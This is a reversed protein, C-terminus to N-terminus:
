KDVSQGAKTLQQKVFATVVTYNANLYDPDESLCTAKWHDLKSGDASEVLTNASYYGVESFGAKYGEESLLYRTFLCATYPLKATEPILTWMNYVFGNYGEVEYNYGSMRLVKKWYGESDPDSTKTESVYDKIKALGAFFIGDKHSETNMAKVESTDSSHYTSINAIFEAVFKYGINEYGDKTKGDELKGDYDKGFYSKYAAKLTKVSDPSTLMILFSMNIDEGIPSQYSLKKIGKMEKGDKGTLQWINKLYDEGAAVNHYFIKNFTVGVIPKQDGKAINFGDGSPVYSHLFGANVLSYVFSADQIMVWDGAYGNSEVANNLTKQFDAGKEAAYVANEETLWDYKEIFKALAKKVGSTLSHAEFKANANDEFEKKSAAELEELSMKSAEDILKEMESRNDQCAVLAFVSTLVLAVVILAAFLKKM